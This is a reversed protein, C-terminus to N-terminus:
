RKRPTREAIKPVGEAPSVVTTIDADLDKILSAMTKGEAKSKKYLEAIYDGSITKGPKAQIFTEIHFSPNDENETPTSRDIIEEAINDSLADQMGEGFSFKHVFKDPNNEKVNFIFLDYDSFPIHFDSYNKFPKGDIRMQFHYHPKQAEAPGSHGAFDNTGCSFSWELHKYKITIEFKRNETMEEELDNINGFPRDSNAVWRLHSQIQSFSFNNYISTFHKKKFGNPRLQYHLCNKNSSFTKLPAKCLYCQGKSFSSYFEEHEKITEEMVERNKEM